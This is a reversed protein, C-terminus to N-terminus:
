RRIEKPDYPSGFTLLHADTVKARLDAIAGRVVDSVSQGTYEAHMRLWDEDDEPLRVSLPPKPNLAPAM